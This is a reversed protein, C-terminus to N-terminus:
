YSADLIGAVAAAVALLQRDQGSCASLMLGTPAAGTRNIPVSISCGDLFNFLATNRLCQGNIRKYDDDAALDHLLPPIIAVTPCLMADFGSM